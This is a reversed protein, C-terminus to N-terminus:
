KIRKFEVDLVDYNVNENGDKDESVAKKYIEKPLDDAIVGQYVGEGHKESNKYEFQYINLGSDSKGIKKINKKIDRDSAALAAYGLYTGLGALAGSAVNGWAQARQSYGQHIYGMGHMVNQQAATVGAQAGQMGGFEMGLLTSQRSMEAQQVMAEGGRFTMDAQQAGRREMMQLQSAMQRSMMANQREQQAVNLSTQMAQMQGQNALTQALSAIGSSGAMGRMQGLIDARQQDVMQKQFNAARQDVTMDEFVNDMGAYFNEMDTYPNQFEFKRYEAKQKELIERQVRMEELQMELMEQNSEMMKKEHARRKKGGM